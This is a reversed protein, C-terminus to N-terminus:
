AKIKRNTIKLPGTKKRLEYDLKVKLGDKDGPNERLKALAWEYSGIELQASRKELTM